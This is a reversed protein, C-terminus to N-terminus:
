CGVLNSIDIIKYNDYIVKASAPLTSEFGCDGRNEYLFAIHLLIAQKLDAPILSITEDFGTKFTIKVANCNDDLSDDFTLKCIEGFIGGTKVTYNDTSLETYVDDKLYEIKELSLFGGKRLTLCDTQFDNDYDCFFDRSYREYTTEKIDRSM